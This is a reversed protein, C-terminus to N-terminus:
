RYELHYNSPFCSPTYPAYCSLQEYHHILIIALLNMEGFDIGPQMWEAGFAKSSFGDYCLYRWDEHQRGRDSPRVCHGKNDEAEKAADKDCVRGFFLEELEEAEKTQLNTGM